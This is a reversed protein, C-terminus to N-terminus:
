DGGLVLIGLNGPLSPVAISSGIGNTVTASFDDNGGKLNVVLGRTGLLTGTLNYRVTDSGGRGLFVPDSGKVSIRSVGSFSLPAAGDCIAQVNGKGDDNVQITHNNGRRLGAALTTISLAGGTQVVSC